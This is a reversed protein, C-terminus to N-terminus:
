GLLWQHIFAGVLWIGFSFPLIISLPLQKGFCFFTVLFFLISPLIGWLAGKTYHVMLDYDGPNDTYLWLMVILGTLPMTAILGALTPFRRGIQSCLIIVANSILLKIFFNM